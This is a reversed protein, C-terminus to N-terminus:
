FFFFYILNQPKFVTVDFPHSSLRSCRHSDLSPYLNVWLIASCRWLRSWLLFSRYSCHQFVRAHSDFSWYITFFFSSSIQFGRQWLIFESGYLIFNNQVRASFSTHSVPETLPHLGVWLWGPQDQVFIVPREIQPLNPKAHSKVLTSGHQKSMFVVPGLQLLSQPSGFLHPSTFLPQHSFFLSKSGKSKIRLSLLLVFKYPFCLCVSKKALWIVFKTRETKKPLSVKKIEFIDRCCDSHNFPKFTSQTTRLASYFAHPHIIVGNCCWIHQKLNGIVVCRTSRGCINFLWQTVQM